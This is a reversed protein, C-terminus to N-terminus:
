LVEQLVDVYDEELRGALSLGLAAVRGYIVMRTNSRQVAMSIEKSWRGLFGNRIKIFDPSGETAGFGLARKAGAIASQFVFDQTEMCARGHSEYVLPVFRFPQELLRYIDRKHQAATEAVHGVGMGVPGRLQLNSNVM